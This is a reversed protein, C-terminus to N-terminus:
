RKRLHELNQNQLVVYACGWGSKPPACTKYHSDPAGAPFFAGDRYEFLYLDRGITNPMSKGNVDVYFWAITAYQNDSTVPTAFWVATGNLLVFKYSRKDTRYSKSNMDVSGDM